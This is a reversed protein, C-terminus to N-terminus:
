SPEQRPVRDNDSSALWADSDREDDFAHADPQTQLYAGKEVRPGRAAMPTAYLMTQNAAITM